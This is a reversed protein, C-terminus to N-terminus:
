RNSLPSFFDWIYLLSLLPWKIKLQSAGSSESCQYGLMIKLSTAFVFHPKIGTMKLVM